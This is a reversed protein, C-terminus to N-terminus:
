SSAVTRLRCFACTHLDNVTGQKGRKENHKAGVWPSAGRCIRRRGNVLHKYLCVCRRPALLSCIFTCHQWWPHHSCNQSTQRSCILMSRKLLADRGEEAAKSDIPAFSRGLFSSARLVDDSALQSPLTVSSQENAGRCAGSQISGCPPLTM